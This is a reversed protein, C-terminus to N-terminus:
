LDIDYILLLEIDLYNVEIDLHRTLPLTLIIQGQGQGRIKINLYVM